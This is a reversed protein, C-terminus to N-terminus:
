YSTNRSHGDRPDSRSIAHDRRDKKCYRTGIKRIAELMDLLRERDDRM